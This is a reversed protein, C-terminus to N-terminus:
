ARRARMAATLAARDAEPLADLAPVILAEEAVLHSAFRPELEGLLRTLEVRERTRTAAPDDDTSIRGCAAILAEVMPHLALHQARMEALARDIVASTGALRPAIADDEDREHLPLAETFYRAIAVAAGRADDATAPADSALRDAMALFRRIREHCGRVLDGPEDIAAHRGITFM